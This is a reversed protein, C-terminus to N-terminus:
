APNLGEPSLLSELSRESGPALLHEEGSLTLRPPEQPWTMAGQGAAGLCLRHSPAHSPSPGLGLAGMEEETFHPCYSYGVSGSQMWCETVVPSSEEGWGM